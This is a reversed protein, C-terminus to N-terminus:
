GGLYAEMVRKDARVQRPSGEAIKRGADLVVVHQSLEMVFEMNHEVLVITQRQENLERLLDRIALIAVDGSAGPPGPPLSPPAENEKV